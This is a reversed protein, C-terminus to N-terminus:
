FVIIRLLLNLTKNRFHLHEVMNCKYAIRAAPNQTLYNQKMKHIMENLCMSMLCIHYLKTQKLTLKFIQRKCQSFYHIFSNVHILVSSLFPYLFLLNQFAYLLYTCNADCRFLSKSDCIVEGNLFSANTSFVM